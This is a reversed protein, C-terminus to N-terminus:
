KKVVKTTFNYRKYKHEKKLKKAEDLAAKRTTFTKRSVMSLTGYSKKFFGKKPKMRFKVVYGM